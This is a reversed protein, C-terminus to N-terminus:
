FNLLILLEIVSINKPQDLLFTYPYKHGLMCHRRFVGLLCLKPPPPPALWQDCVIGAGGGGLFFFLFFFFFFFKTESREPAVALMLGPNVM